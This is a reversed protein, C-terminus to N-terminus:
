VWFLSMKHLHWRFEPCVAWKTATVLWMFNLLHLLPFGGTKVPDIALFCSASSDAVHTFEGLNGSSVFGGLLDVDPVPAGGTLLCVQSFAEAQAFKFKRLLYM